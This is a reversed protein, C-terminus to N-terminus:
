HTGEQNHQSPNSNTATPLGPPPEARHRGQGSGSELERTGSPVLGLRERLESEKEVQGQAVEQRLMRAGLALGSARDRLGDITVSERLRRAKNMAYVSAGAGAAFWLARSM